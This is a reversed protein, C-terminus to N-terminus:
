ARLFEIAELYALQGEELQLQTIGDNSCLLNKNNILEMNKELHPIFMKPNM